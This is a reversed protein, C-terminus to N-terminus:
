RLRSVAVMYHLVAYAAPVARYDAPSSGHVPLVLTGNLDLFVGPKM